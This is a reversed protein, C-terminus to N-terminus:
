RGGAGAGSDALRLTMVEGLAGRVENLTLYDDGPPSDWKRCDLRMVQPQKESRLFLEVYYVRTDSQSGYLIPGAVVLPANAVFDYGTKIRTIAFTDPEVIRPSDNLDRLEFKCNPYYQDVEAQALVRGGQLWTALGHAPITLPQRLVLRSGATVSWLPADGPDSPATQCSCLAILAIALVSRRWTGAWGQAAISGASAQAAGM